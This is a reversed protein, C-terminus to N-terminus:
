LSGGCYTAAAPLTGFPRKYTHTNETYKEGKERERFEGGYYFFFVILNFLIHVTVVFEGGWGGSRGGEGKGKGRVKRHLPPPPPNSAPWLVRASHKM